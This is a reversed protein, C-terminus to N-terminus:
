DRIAEQYKIPDDLELAIIVEGIKALRQIHILSTDMADQIKEQDTHPRWGMVKGESKEEETAECGRYTQKFCAAGSTAMAMWHQAYLKTTDYQVRCRTLMEDRRDIKTM